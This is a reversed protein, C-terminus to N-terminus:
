PRAFAEPPERYRYLRGCSECTLEDIVSPNPCHAWSHFGEGACHWCEMILFHFTEGCHQCRLATIVHADFVEFPDEHAHGCRPCDITENMASAAPLM